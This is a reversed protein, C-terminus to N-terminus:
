RRKNKGPIVASGLQTELVGEAVDGSTLTGLLKTRRVLLKFTDLKFFYAIQDLSDLNPSHKDYPKLLRQVTKYSVGSAAEVERPTRFQHIEMLQRLNEAIAFRAPTPKPPGKHGNGM